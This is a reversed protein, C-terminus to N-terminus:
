REGEAIWGRLLKAVNEPEKASMASVHRALVPLRRSDAKQAASAALQAEIQQELEAVTHLPGEGNPLMVGSVPPALARSGVSQM